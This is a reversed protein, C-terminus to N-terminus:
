HNQTNKVEFVESLGQKFKRKDNIKPRTENFDLFNFLKVSSFFEIEM